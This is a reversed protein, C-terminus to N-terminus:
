LHCAALSRVSTHGCPAERGVQVDRQIKMHFLFKKNKSGSYKLVRNGQSLQYVYIYVIYVYIYIFLICLRHIYIYVYVYINYM